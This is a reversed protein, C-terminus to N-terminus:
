VHAQPAGVTLIPNCSGRGSVLYLDGTRYLSRPAPSWDKSGGGSFTRSRANTQMRTQGRHAPCTDVCHKVTTHNSRAKDVNRKDDLSVPIHPVLLVKKCNLNPIHSWRQPKWLTLVWVMKSVKCKCVYAVKVVWYIALAAIMILETNTSPWGLYLDPSHPSSSYFWDEQHDQLIDALCRGETRITFELFLTVTRM